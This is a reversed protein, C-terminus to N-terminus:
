VGKKYTASPGPWEPLSGALVLANPLEPFECPLSITRIHLIGWAAPGM